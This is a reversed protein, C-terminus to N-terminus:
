NKYAEILGGQLVVDVQRPSLSHEATFETNQTGNRVTVETGNRLEERIAPLELEDGQEIAEYDDRDVFELPVIGFNVLNQWHIRAYSVALAARMGLHYPALAAHERSSGQGYNSGGVVLWPAGAEEARQYFGQEVQDFVWESIKPINSRYPLVASGAPMIEDTSIDDGVKMLVPGSIADPVTEFEPLSKVNPGKELEGGPNEPPPSLASDDVIIAEPEEWEPYSMDHTDELTRPDTIEGALASAVATEPSCLFVSDERTGTRGPFNRPVTRLSNRGSAPAQGMGICGNCGAQHVRAGSAYLMTLYGEATLNQLMQRSTPNVDFSVEPPVRHNEAIMAPVAFDRLGPNASSGIYGQYLNEGAVETVPVVNGPSSPKAIMPEIASLDIHETVHYEADDDALLESFDEEREQQALFSRVAEDAPFVTSTAGLETGMNAIVHRDMATLSDLGPGYYEIVRGVGGDVDHRRLLELIVDKASCWDPLEGELEVGWVEPMEVHYPEGAMAMAIDLGGSGIALMGMAGAAPTHSDSGLLTKGPIGFREQHVPHSVGNGAPSYWVGWKQCASKLFLHDDPNKNDEQILNHDVYQASLETRVEDVEMSELELMVMTGTADQTLTQDIEIAIEEGPETEGEVLHAEVIKETITGSM